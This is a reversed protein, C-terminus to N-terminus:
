RWWRPASEKPDVQHVDLAAVEVQARAVEHHGGIGAGYRGLTADALPSAITRNDCNSQRRRANLGLMWFARKTELAVDLRRVDVDGRAQESQWEAADRRLELKGPWPVMQHVGYQVM